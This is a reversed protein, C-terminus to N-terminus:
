SLFFGLYLESVCALWQRQRLARCLALSGNWRRESCLPFEWKNQWLSCIPCSSAVQYLVLCHKIVRTKHCKVWFWAYSSGTWCNPLDRPKITDLTNRTEGIYLNYMFIQPLMAPIRGLCNYFYNCSNLDIYPGAYLYQPM